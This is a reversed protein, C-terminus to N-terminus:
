RLVWPGCIAITSSAATKTKTSASSNGGVQFGSSRQLHSTRPNALESEMRRSVCLARATTCSRGRRASRMALQRCTRSARPGTWTVRDLRSLRLPVNAFSAITSSSTIPRSRRSTESRLRGAPRGCSRPFMAGLTMESLSEWLGYPPDTRAVMRVDILTGGYEVLRKGEWRLPARTLVTGTEPPWTEAALFRLLEIAVADIRWREMSAHGACLRSGVAAPDSCRVCTGPAAQSM